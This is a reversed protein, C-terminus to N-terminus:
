RGGSTLNESVPMSHVSFPSTKAAEVAAESRPPLSPSPTAVVAAEELEREAATFGSPPHSRVVEAIRRGHPMLIETVKLKVLSLRQPGDDVSSPDTSGEWPPSEDESLHQPAMGKRVTLIPSMTVDVTVTPANGDDEEDDPSLM